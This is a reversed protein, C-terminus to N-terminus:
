DKKDYVYERMLVFGVVLTLALVFLRSLINSNVQKVIIKQRWTEGSITITDKESKPEFGNIYISERLPHVLEELYTSRTQDRIITQSEEPPYNFRLFPLNSFEKKYHNIVQERTYNTFYARRINLIESDGPEKSQVADPPPNPFDPSPLLLYFFLVLSVIILFGNLIKSKM